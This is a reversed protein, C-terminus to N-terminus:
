VCYCTIEFKQLTEFTYKLGQGIQGYTNSYQCLAFLVHSLIRDKHNGLISATIIKM